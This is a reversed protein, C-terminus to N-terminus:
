LFCMHNAFGIKHVDQVLWNAGVSDRCDSELWNSGMVKKGYFDDTSM